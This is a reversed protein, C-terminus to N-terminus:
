ITVPSLLVIKVLLLQALYKGSWKTWKKVADVGFKSAGSILGGLSAEDELGTVINANQLETLGKNFLDHRQLIKYLSV